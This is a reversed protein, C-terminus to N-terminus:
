LMRSKRRARLGQPPLSCSRSPGRTNIVRVGRLGRLLGTGPDQLPGPAAAVASSHPVGTIGVRGGHLGGRWSPMSDALLVNM